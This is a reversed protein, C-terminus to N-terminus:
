GPPRSPASTGESIFLPRFVWGSARFVGFAKTFGGQRWLSEAETAEPVVLANRDAYYNLQRFSYPWDCLLLIRDDPRTNARVQEALWAHHPYFAGLAEGVRAPILKRQTELATVALLALAVAPWLATRGRRWVAGLAMGSALALPVSLYFQYYIHVYAGQRFALINFLATAALAGVLLTGPKGPWGLGLLWAVALTASVGSFGQWFYTAQKGLFGGVGFQGQAAREGAQTGLRHCLARWLEDLGGQLLAVHGAVTLFGLVAAGVPILLWAARGRRSVWEAALLLPPVAAVIWAYWVGVFAAGAMGALWRPHADRRWQLYLAGLVLAFFTGPAEHDPLRGYLAVIPQLVFAMAACFGALRGAIEAGIRYLCAAAGLTFLIFVLRATWEHEGLVAFAGAITLSIGPPHHAYFRFDCARLEGANIVQGGRTAVLGYRLYNRAATSYSAGNADFSGFWPRTIGPAMMAAGVVLPVAWGLYRTLSM